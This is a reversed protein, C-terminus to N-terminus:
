QIILQKPSSKGSEDSVIVTYVGASFENNLVTHITGSIAESYVLRNSNDYILIKAKQSVASLEIQVNGGNSPNPYISFDISGEERVGSCDEVNVNFSVVDGACESLGAEIVWDYFYYYFNPGATSGFISITDTIEYPYSIGTNSRYLNPSNVATFQYDSGVPIDYNLEVVSEGDPLNYSGGYVLNGGQDLLQLDRVGSGNAYVKVSKLRIPTMVDFLMYQSGSFYAGSAGVTDVIGTNLTVGATVELPEAYFTTPASLSASTFTQGNGVLFGNENYWNVDSDTATLTVSTGECVLTDGSVSITDPAPLVDITIPASTATGCHNELSVDYTGAQSVQISQTTDGTSWVYNLGAPATLTVLEGDCIETGMNSSITFNPNGPVDQLTLTFPVATYNNTEDEEIFHNLPDIEAVIWYDGNCTGPPINIWMGDLNQNYIDTYGVSIGQEIPSCNYNGGGLGWNPFDVNLLTNGNSYLTNDDKCHNNYGSCTGYDMLCFGLKAGDGVIPWNLPNPDNPNELRLTFVGWDDVHNHGHTPHYTMAGAWHDSYTMTGDSNRHYIRQTILQRPASGDPCVGPDGFLTDGDCVFYESGLVTLPGHGINPTSGTLKLKGDDAGNGSQSYESPGGLYVDMAYWSVTIDPLLDCDNSGDECVCSTGDTTTCQAEILGPKFLFFTLGLPILIKM